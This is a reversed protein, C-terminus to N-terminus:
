NKGAAGEKGPAWSILLEPAGTENLDKPPGFVDGFSAYLKPAHRELWDANVRGGRRGMAFYVMAAEAFFESENYQAKRYPTMRRVQHNTRFSHFTLILNEADERKIGKDYVVHMLEHVLISGKNRRACPQSRYADEMLNREWVMVSQTRSCAHKTTLYGGCLREYPRGWNRAPVLHMVKAVCASSGDRTRVEEVGILYETRGFLTIAYRANAVQKLTSLRMNILIAEILRRAEFVAEESVGRRRDVKNLVKQIYKERLRARSDIANANWFLPQAILLLACGIAARPFRTM